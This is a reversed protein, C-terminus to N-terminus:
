KEFTKEIKKERFGITFDLNGCSMGHCNGETEDAEAVPQPLPAIKVSTGRGGSEMESFDIVGVLNATAESQIYEAKAVRGFSASYKKVGFIETGRPLWEPDLAVDYGGPKVNEFYFVGDRGSFTEQVVEGKELLVVRIQYLSIKAKRSFYNNQDLRINGSIIGLSEFSIAVELRRGSRIRVDRSEGGAPSFGVPYSNRDIGLVYKAPAVDSIEFYGAADTSARYGTGLHVAVNALPKDQEDFVGNSDTDVFFVGQISGNIKYPIKVNIDRSYSMTSINENHSNRETIEYKFRLDDDKSLRSNLVFITRYADSAGAYYGSNSEKLWDIQMSIKKNPFCYALEGSFRRVASPGLELEVFDLAGALSIGLSLGNRVYNGSFDYEKFDRTEGASTERGAEIGASVNLANFRKATKFELSDRRARIPHYPHSIDYSDMSVSNVSAAFSLQSKEFTRAWGATNNAYSFAVPEFPYAYVDLSKYNTHHQANLFIRSKGIYYDTHLETGKQFSVSTFNKGANQAVANLKFKNGDYNVGFRVGSGTLSPAGGDPVLRGDAAESSLKIRRSLMYEASLSNASTRSHEAGLNKTTSRGIGISLRTAPSMNWKVFSTGKLASGGRFFSLVGNGVSRSFLWGNNETEGGIMKSFPIYQDGIALRSNGFGMEYASRRTDLKGGNSDMWVDSKLTLGNDTFLPLMLRLATRPDRDTVTEYEINLRLPIFRYHDSQNKRAPIKSIININNEAIAFGNGIVRIKIASTFEANDSIVFFVVSLIKSSGPELEVPAPVEKLLVEKEQEIEFSYIERAGGCNSLSFVITKSERGSISVSEPLGDIAACIKSEATLLIETKASIGPRRTSVLAVEVPIPRGNEIDGSVSFTLAIKKVAGAELPVPELASVLLVRPDASVSIIYTDSESVDGTAIFSVTIFERARVKIEGSRVPALDLANSLASLGILMAIITIIIAVTRRM